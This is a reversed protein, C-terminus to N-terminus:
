CRPVSWLSLGDINRGCPACFSVCRVFCLLLDNVNIAFVHSLIGLFIGVM